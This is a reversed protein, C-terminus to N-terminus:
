AAWGMGVDTKTGSGGQSWSLVQDKNIVLGPLTIRGAGLLVNCNGGGACIASYAAAQTITPCFLFGAATALAFRRLGHRQM